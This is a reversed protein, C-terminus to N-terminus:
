RVFYGLSELEIALNVNNVTVDPPVQLVIPSFNLIAQIGAALLRNCVEQATTAPVCLIAIKIERRELYKELERMPLVPIESRAALRLPNVDFAAVVEFGERAFGHYRLLASGLNGAGILIVPQLTASGLTDALRRRLHLVDYGLGRKGFQGCYALDKRLQTPKVGAVKALTESSVTGGASDGLRELCRNYLSLRYVTKKPIEEKM